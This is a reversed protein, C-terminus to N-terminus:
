QKARANDLVKKGYQNLAALFSKMDDYVIQINPQNRIALRAIKEKAIFVNKYNQFFRSCKWPRKLHPQFQREFEISYQVFYLSILQAQFDVYDIIVLPVYVMISILYERLKAENEKTISYLRLRDMQLQDCKEFFSPPGWTGERVPSLLMTWDYVFKDLGNLMPDLLLRSNYQFSFQFHISARMYRYFRTREELVQRPSAGHEVIEVRIRECDDYNRIQSLLSNIIPIDLANM